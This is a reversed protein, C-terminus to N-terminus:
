RASPAPRRGSLGGWASGVLALVYWGWEAAGNALGMLMAAYDPGLKLASAWPLLGMNRGMEAAAIGYNALVISLATGAVAVLASRGGAPWRALRLLLLMDLAAVLALWACQDELAFAALVWAAAVGGVALAFLPLAYRLAVPAHPSDMRGRM